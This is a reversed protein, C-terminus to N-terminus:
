GGEAKIKLAIFRAYIPLFWLDTPVFAVLVKHLVGFRQEIWRQLALGGLVVIVIIIIAIQHHLGVHAIHDVRDRLARQLHRHAVLLAIVHVFLADDLIQQLLVRTGAARHHAACRLSVNLLM